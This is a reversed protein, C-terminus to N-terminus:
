VSVIGPCQRYLGRSQDTGLYGARVILRGALDPRRFILSQARVSQAEAARNRCRGNPCVSASNLRMGFPAPKDPPLEM